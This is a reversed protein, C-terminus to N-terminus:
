PEMQKCGWFGHPEGPVDPLNILKGKVEKISTPDCYVSFQSPLFGHALGCLM